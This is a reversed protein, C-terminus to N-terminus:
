EVPKTIVPVCIYYADAFSYYMDEGVLIYIDGVSGFNADGNETPVVNPNIVNKVEIVEGEGPLEAISEGTIYYIVDNHMFLLTAESQSTQKSGSVIAYIGSGLAGLGVLGALCISM